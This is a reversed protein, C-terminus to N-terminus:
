SCWHLELTYLNDAKQDKVVVIPIMSKWMPIAIISTIANETMPLDMRLFLSIFVRGPSVLNRIPILPILLIMVEKMLSEALLAIMLMWLGQPNLAVSVLVQMVVKLLHRCLKKLLHIINHTQPM